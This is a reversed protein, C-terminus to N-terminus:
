HVTQNLPGYVIWDNEEHDWNLTLGPLDEDAISPNRWDALTPDLVVGYKQEMERVMKQYQTLTLKTM